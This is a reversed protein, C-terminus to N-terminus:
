SSLGMGLAQSQNVFPGFRDVLYPLSFLFAKPENRLFFWPPFHDKKKYIIDHRSLIDSNAAMQWLGASLTLIYLPCLSPFQLSVSSPGQQVVGPSAGGRSKILGRQTPAKKYRYGLSDWGVSFVEM